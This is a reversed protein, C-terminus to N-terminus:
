GISLDVAEASLIRQKRALHANQLHTTTPIIPHDNAAIFRFAV